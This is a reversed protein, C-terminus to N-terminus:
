EDPFEERIIAKQETIETKLYSVISAAWETTECSYEYVLKVGDDITILDNSNEPFVVCLKTEYANERKESPTRTDPILQWDRILKNDEIYWIESYNNGDQPYEIYNIEYYGESILQEISAPIYWTGDIEINRPAYEMQTESILKGFNRNYLM